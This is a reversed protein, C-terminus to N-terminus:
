GTGYHATSASEFYSVPIICALWVYWFMTSNTLTGLMNILMEM